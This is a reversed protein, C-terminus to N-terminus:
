TQEGVAYLIPEKGTVEKVKKRAAEIKDGLADLDIADNWAEHISVGSISSPGEERYQYGASICELPWPNKPEKTEDWCYPVGVVIQMPESM